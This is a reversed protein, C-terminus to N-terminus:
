VSKTNSVTTTGVYTPKSISLNYNRKKHRLSQIVCGSYVLFLKAFPSDFKQLMQPYRELIQSLSADVLEQQEEMRECLGAIEYDLKAKSFIFNGSKEIGKCLIGNCLRLFVLSEQKRKDFDTDFTDSNKEVEIKMSKQIINTLQEQLQQKTKRMLTSRSESPMGYQNSLKQIREVVYAKTNKPVTMPTMSKKEDELSQSQVLEEVLEDNKFEM